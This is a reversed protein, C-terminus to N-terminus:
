LGRPQRRMHLAGEVHETEIRLAKFGMSFAGSYNGFEILL